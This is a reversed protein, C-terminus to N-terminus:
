VKQDKIMQLLSMTQDFIPVENTRQEEEEEVDNLKPGPIIIVEIESLKFGSRKNSAMKKLNKSKIVIIFQFRLSDQDFQCCVHQLNGYM